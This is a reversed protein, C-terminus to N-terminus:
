AGGEEATSQQLAGNVPIALIQVDGFTTAAFIAQDTIRIESIHAAVKCLGVAKSARLPPALAIRLGHSDPAVTGVLHPPLAVSANAIDFHDQSFDIAITGGRILATIQSLLNM